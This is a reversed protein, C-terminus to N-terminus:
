TATFRQLQRRLDLNEGHARELATRLATLEDRHTKRLRALEASLAAVM